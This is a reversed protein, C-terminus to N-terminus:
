YNRLSQFQTELCNTTARASLGTTIVIFLSCAEPRWPNSETLWRQFFILLMVRDKDYCLSTFLLNM